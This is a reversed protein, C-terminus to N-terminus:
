IEWLHVTVGVWGKLVDGAGIVMYVGSLALQEDTLDSGCKSEM